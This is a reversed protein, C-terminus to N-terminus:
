FGFGSASSKWFEIMEEKDM